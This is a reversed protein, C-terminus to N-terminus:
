NLTKWSKTKLSELAAQSEASKKSHGQGQGLVHGNWIVRVLFTKSHDPGEQSIVEYIPALPIIAQLLEQLKGKPNDIGTKDKYGKSLIKQASYLFIREAESYGQDLYIAGIFAEYTNSLNSEKESGNNQREGSSFVMYNKFELERAFAALSPRSVVLARLKTMKGEPYHPFNNFLYKTTILEVVADGLFELREYHKTKHASPHTFAEEFLM